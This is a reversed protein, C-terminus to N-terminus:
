CSVLMAAGNSNIWTHRWLVPLDEPLEEISPPREVAGGGAFISAEADHKGHVPKSEGEQWLPQKHIVATM